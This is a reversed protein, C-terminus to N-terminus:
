FLPAHTYTRTHKAIQRGPVNCFCDASTMMPEFGPLPLQQKKDRAAFLAASCACFFAPDATAPAAAYQHIRNPTHPPYGGVVLVFIQFPSSIKNNLLWCFRKEKEEMFLCLVYFMFCLFM